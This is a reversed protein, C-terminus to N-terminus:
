DEKAAKASHQEAKADLQPSLLKILSKILRFSVTLVATDLPTPAINISSLVVLTVCCSALRNSSARLKTRPDLIKGNNRTRMIQIDM